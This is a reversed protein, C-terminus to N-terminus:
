RRGAHGRFHNQQRHNAQPRAQRRTRARQKLRKKVREKEKEQARRSLPLIEAPKNPILPPPEFRETEIVIVSSDPFHRLEDLLDLALLNSTTTLLTVRRAAEQQPTRGSAKALAM